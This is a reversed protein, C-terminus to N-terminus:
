STAGPRQRLALVIRLLVRPDAHVSRHRQWPPLLLPVDFATDSGPPLGSAIPDGRLHLARFGRQRRVMGDNGQRQEALDALLAPFPFRLWRAVTALRTGGFPSALAFVWPEDDSERSLAAAVLGGLSHGIYDCPEGPRAGDAHTVLDPLPLNHRLDIDIIRGSTGTFCRELHARLTVFAEASSDYGPLLVVPRQLPTPQAALIDLELGAAAMDQLVTARRRHGVLCFWGVWLGAGLLFVVDGYRVYPTLETRPRVAVALTGTQFLETAHHIRGDPGIAGSIGTNAARVVPRGTEVARLVVMAFHQYPAATTGFWADNTTNVLFGAGRAALDRTIAPFISEYCVFLGLHNEPATGLPIIAHREGPDFAGSQATLEHMYGFLWAFPLYEGFPVLHVKDGFGAVDGRRDILFSRNYLGPRGTPSRTGLSGVLLPTDIDIALQAVAHRYSLHADDDFRYPLATEPWLILDLRGSDEALARTLDAYRQTTSQKWGPEWKVDQRINGQIIGIRLPEIKSESALANLQGVGWVVIAIGPLLVAFSASIRQRARTSCLLQAFGMNVLVICFTLGHVGALAAFAAILPEDYQTTGLVVWPFGSLLWTQVWDLLVWAAAVLWPILLDANWSSPTGADRLRRCISFFLMPYVALYLVLLATTAVAEVLGLGGYRGLTEAIWYVRFLGSAGGSALGCLLASRTTWTAGNPPRTVVCLVPVLCVWALWGSGWGPLSLGHLVGSIVGTAIPVALPSLSVVRQEASPSSM